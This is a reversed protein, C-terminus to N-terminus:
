KRIQRKVIHKYWSAAHHCKRCVFYRGLFDDKKV